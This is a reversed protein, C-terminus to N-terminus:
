WESGEVVHDKMKVLKQAHLNNATGWKGDLGISEARESRDDTTNGAILLDQDGFKTRSAREPDRARKHQM